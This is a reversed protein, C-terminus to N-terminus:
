QFPEATPLLSRRGLRLGCTDWSKATCRPQRCDYECFEVAKPVDEVWPETLWKLRAWIRARSPPAAADPAQALNKRM